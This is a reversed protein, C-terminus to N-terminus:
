ADKRPNKSEEARRGAAAEDTLRRIAEIEKADMVPSDMLCQM